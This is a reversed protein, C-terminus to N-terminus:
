NTGISGFKQQGCATKLIIEVPQYVGNHSPEGIPQIISYGKQIIFQKKQNNIILVKVSGRYVAYVVRASM